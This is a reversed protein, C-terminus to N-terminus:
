GDESEVGLPEAHVLMLCISTSVAPDIMRGVFRSHVWGGTLSKSRTRMTSRVIGEEALQALLAPVRMIDEPHLGPTQGTSVGHGAWKPYGTLWQLACPTPWRTEVIAGFMETTDTIAMAVSADLLDLGLEARDAAASVDQLVVRVRSGSETTMHRQAYLLVGVAGDTKRIVVTGSAVDGPGAALLKEWLRVLDTTRAVRQFFDLPGYVARDREADPVGIIDLFGTTVHLRPASDAVMEWYGVACPAAKTSNAPDAGSVIQVANVGGDPGCVPVALYTTGTDGVRVTPQAGREVERILGEVLAKEKGRLVSSIRRFERPRGDAAVVQPESGGVLEVLLDLDAM